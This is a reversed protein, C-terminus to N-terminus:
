AHAESIHLKKYGLKKGLALLAGRIADTGVGGISHKLEIGAKNIAQEAAESEKCYGWGGARGSGNGYTNGKKDHIWLCAYCDNAPWYLRLNAVEIIEGKYIAQLIYSRYFGHEKRHAKANIADVPKYRIVENKM